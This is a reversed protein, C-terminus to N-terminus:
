NNVDHSFTMTGAALLFIVFSTLIINLLAAEDRQSSLDFEATLAISNNGGIISVISKDTARLSDKDNRGQPIMGILRQEDPFGNYELHICDTSNLFYEETFLWSELQQQSKSSSYNFRRDFVIQLSLQNLYEFDSVQLLPIIILLFLIGVIVRKTTRDSMEAGLRSEQTIGKDTSEDDHRKDSFYKYLKVLRILRIMRVVKIM